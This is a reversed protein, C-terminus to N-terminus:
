KKGDPELTIDPVGSWIKQQSERLEILSQIGSPTVEYFYRSKGGREPLPDGKIKRAFGKRKLKDLPTYISAFSWKQGTDKYIQERISVGYAGEGLKLITLLITEESRSLTKM